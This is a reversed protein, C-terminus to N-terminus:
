AHLLELLFRTDEVLAPARELTGLLSAEAKAAEEEAPFFIRYSKYCSTGTGIVAEYWTPTEVQPHQNLFDLTGTACTTLTRLRSVGPPTGARALRAALAQLVFYESSAAKDRLIRVGVRDGLACVTWQPPVVFVQNEPLGEVRVLTSVVADHAPLNTAIMARLVNVSTDDTPNDYPATSLATGYDGPVVILTLLGTNKLLLSTRTPDTWVRYTGSPLGTVTPAVATTSGRCDTVRM